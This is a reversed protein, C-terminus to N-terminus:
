YSNDFPLFPNLCLCATFDLRYMSDFEMFFIESAVLCLKILFSLDLRFSVGEIAKIEVM